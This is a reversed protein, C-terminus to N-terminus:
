VKRAYLPTNTWGGDPRQPNCAWTQFVGNKYCKYSDPEGYREKDWQELYSTSPQTSLAERYIQILRLPLGHHLNHAKIREFCERLKAIEAEREALEGALRKNDVMYEDARDNNRIMECGRNKAVKDFFYDAAAYFAWEVVVVVAFIVATYIVADITIM